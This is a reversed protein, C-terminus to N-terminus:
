RIRLLFISLIYRLNNVNRLIYHEKAIASLVLPPEDEVPTCWAITTFTPKGQVEAGVVVVPLPYFWLKPGYNKRIM